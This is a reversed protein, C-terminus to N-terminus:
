DDEEEDDFEGAKNMEAFASRNSGKRIDKTEDTKTFEKLQSVMGSLDAYQTIWNIYSNLLGSQFKFEKEMEDQNEKDTWKVTNLYDNCDEIKNKLLELCHDVYDIHPKLDKNRAM